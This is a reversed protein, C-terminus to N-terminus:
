DIIHKVSQSNPPQHYSNLVHSFGLLSFTIHGKEMVNFMTCSLHDSCIKRSDEWQFSNSILLKSFYIFGIIFFVCFAVLCAPFYVGRNSSLDLSLDSVSRGPDNV